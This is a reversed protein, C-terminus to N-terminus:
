RQSPVSARWILIDTATTSAEDILAHLEVSRPDPGGEGEGTLVAGAGALGDAACASRAGTESSTDIFVGYEGRPGSEIARACGFGCFTERQPFVAQGGAWNQQLSLQPIQAGAFPDHM